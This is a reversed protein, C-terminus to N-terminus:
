RFPRTRPPQRAIPSGPANLTPASPSTSRGELLDRKDEAELVGFLALMWEDPTLRLARHAAALEGARTSKGAGPLGVMLLLKAPEPQGDQSPTAQATALEDAPPLLAESTCPCPNQYTPRSQQSM